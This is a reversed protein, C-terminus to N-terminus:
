FASTPTEGVANWAALAQVHGAVDHVRLASAGQQVARLHVAITAIDRDAVEGVNSITGVFRKRSAGVLVPLGHVGLARLGRVLALNEDVSKGFGLGPDLVIETVGASRALDAQALLFAGVDRVVDDYGSHRHTDSLAAAPTHMIIVPVDAAAVADLMAPDRLGGVDNVVCAGAALAAIVVRARRSDISIPIGLKSLAEIVPIVRDLEANVTVEDAGPRTSEGGIDILHAGDAVMKLAHGVALELNVFKGGDSFSDPTVNLIGVITVSRQTFSFRTM